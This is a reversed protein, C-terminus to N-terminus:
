QKHTTPTVGPPGYWFITQFYYPLRADQRARTDAWITKGDSSLVGYYGILVNTTENYGAFYIRPGEQLYQNLMIQIQTTPTYTIIKGNRTYETQADGFSFSAIDPFQYMGDTPGGVMKDTNWSTGKVSPFPTTCLQLSSSIANNVTVTSNAASGGTLSNKNTIVYEQQDATKPFTVKITTVGNTVTDIGTINGVTSDELVLGGDLTWTFLAYVSVTTVGNFRLYCPQPYTQGYTSALGTWETNEFFYGSTNGSSGGPTQNTKDCGAFILALLCSCISIYKKM